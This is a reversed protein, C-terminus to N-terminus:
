RQLPWNLGVFVEALLMEFGVQSSCGGWAFSVLDAHESLLGRTWGQLLALWRGQGPLASASGLCLVWSSLVTYNRGHVCM